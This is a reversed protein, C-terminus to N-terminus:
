FYSRFIAKFVYRIDKQTMSIRLGYKLRVIFCKMPHSEYAVSVDKMFINFRQQVGESNQKMDMSFNQHLEISVLDITLGSERVHEMFVHDIYDLFIREDYHFQEYCSMKVCMGSNIATLNPLEKQVEERSTFCKRWERPRSPSIIHSKSKVIPLLVDAASEMQKELLKLMFDRPLLTDDDLWVIYTARDKLYSLAQNYAKSIGVNGNMSLYNLQNAEAYQFNKTPITSNDVFLIKFDKNEQTQLSQYTESDVINVNYLVIVVYTSLDM